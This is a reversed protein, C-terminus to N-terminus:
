ESSVSSVPRFSGSGTTGRGQLPGPHLCDGIVGNGIGDSGAGTELRVSKAHQASARFNAGADSDNLNSM